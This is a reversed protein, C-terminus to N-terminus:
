WNIPHGDADLEPVTVVQGNYIVKDGPKSVVPNYVPPREKPMTPTATKDLGLIKNGDMRLGLIGVPRVSPDLVPRVPMTARRKRMYERQYDKKAQGTLM